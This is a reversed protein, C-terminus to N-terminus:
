PNGGPARLIDLWDAGAVPPVHVLVDLNPRGLRRALEHAAVQGVSNVDNDAFVHLARVGPPPMFSKLGGASLAAWVPIGHLQHAALATEVGEAVGLVDGAPYLRVAAGIITGAAPM